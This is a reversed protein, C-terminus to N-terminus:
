GSQRAHRNGKRRKDHAIDDALREAGYKKRHAAGQEIAKAREDDADYLNFWKRLEWSIIMSDPPRTCRRGSADEWIDPVERERDRESFSARSEATKNIRGIM